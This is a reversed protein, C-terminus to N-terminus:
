LISQFGSTKSFAPISQEVDGGAHYARLLGARVTKGAQRGVATIFDFHVAFEGDDYDLSNLLFRLDTKQEFIFVRVEDADTPTKEGGGFKSVMDQSAFRHIGADAAPFAEPKGVM